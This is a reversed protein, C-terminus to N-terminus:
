GVGGEGEVEGEMEGMHEGGEGEFNKQGVTDQEKAVGEDGGGKQEGSEGKRRREIESSVTRAMIILAFDAFLLSNVGLSWILFCGATMQLHVCFVSIELM